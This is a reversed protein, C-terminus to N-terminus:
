KKKEQDIKKNIEAYKRDVASNHYYVQMCIVAYFLTFVLPPIVGVSVILIKANTHWKDIYPVKKFFKKMFKELDKNWDSVKKHIRDKWSLNFGLIKEAYGVFNEELVQANMWNDASMFDLIDEQTQNGEYGYIKGERYYTTAINNKPPLNPIHQCLTGEQGCDM